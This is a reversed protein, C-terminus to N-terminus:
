SSSRGISCRIARRARRLAGEHPQAVPRRRVEPDARDRRDALAPTFVWADFAEMLGVGNRLVVESGGRVVLDPRAADLLTRYRPWASRDEGYCSWLAHWERAFTMLADVVRAIKPHPVAESQMFAIHARMEWPTM